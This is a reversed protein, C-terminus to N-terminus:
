QPRARRSEGTLTDPRHAAFLNGAVGPGGKRHPEFPAAARHQAGVEGPLLDQHPGPGARSADAAPTADGQPPARILRERLWPSVPADQHAHQLARGPKERLLYGVAKASVGVRIAQTLM